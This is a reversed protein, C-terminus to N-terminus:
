GVEFPSGSIAPNAVGGNEDDLTDGIRIEFNSLQETCCGARKTLSVTAIKYSQGLDVRWWPNVRGVATHSCRDVSTATNGACFDVFM